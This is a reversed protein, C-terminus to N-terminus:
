ADRRHKLLIQGLREVLSVFDLVDTEKIVIRQGLAHAKDGYRRLYDEDVIGQCHALLHRQQFYNRLRRMDDASLEELYNVGTVKLWAAGGDDLSQFTNRRVREAGPLMVYVQEALRQFSMVADQVGKELLARTLVEAEDAGLVERLVHQANAATRIAGLTQLFM